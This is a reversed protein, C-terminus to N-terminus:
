AGGNGAKNRKRNQSVLYIGFMLLAIVIAGLTTAGVMLATSSEFAAGAVM